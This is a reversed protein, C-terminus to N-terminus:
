KNSSDSTSTSQRWSAWWLMFRATAATAATAPARGGARGVRLWGGGDEGGDWRPRARGRGAASARHSRWSRWSRWLYFYNCKSSSDSTCWWSAWWLFLCCFMGCACVCMCLCFYCLQHQHQFDLVEVEVKMQQPHPHPHEQELELELELEHGHGHEQKQEQEPFLVYLCVCCIFHINSHECMWFIALMPGKAPLNESFIENKVLDTRPNASSGGWWVYVNGKRREEKEKEREEKGKGKRKKVLKKSGERQLCRVRRSKTKLSHM